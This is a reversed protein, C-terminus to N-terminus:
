TTTSTRAKSGRRAAATTCRAVPSCSGPDGGV